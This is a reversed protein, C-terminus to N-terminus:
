YKENQRLQSYPGEEPSVVGMGLLARQMNPNLVWAGGCRIHQSRRNNSDRWIDRHRSGEGHELKQKFPAKGMLSVRLLGHFVARRAVLM